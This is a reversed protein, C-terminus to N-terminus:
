SASIWPPPFSSGSRGMKIVFRRWCSTLRSWDGWSWGCTWTIAPPRGQSAREVAGRLQDQVERDHNWWYTEWVPKGLVDAPELGGAELPPKNAAILVGVFAFLSDLLGRLHRESVIPEGHHFSEPSLRLAGGLSTFRPPDPIQSSTVRARTPNGDIEVCTALGIDIGNREDRLPTTRLHIWQDTGDRGRLDLEISEGEGVARLWRDPAASRDDPHIAQTWGTEASAEPSMGTYSM